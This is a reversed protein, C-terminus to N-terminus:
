TYSHTNCTHYKTLFDAIEIDKDNRFLVNLSKRVPEKDKRKMGLRPKFQWQRSPLISSKFNSEDISIILAEEAM